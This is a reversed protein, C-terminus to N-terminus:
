IFHFLDWILLIFSQPFQFIHTNTSKVLLVILDAQFTILKESRIRYFRFYLTIYRHIFNIGRIYGRMFLLYWVESKWELINGFGLWLLLFVLM